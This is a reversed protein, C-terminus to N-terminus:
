TSNEYRGIDGLNYQFYFRMWVNELKGSRYLEKVRLPSYIGISKAGSKELCLEGEARVVYLDWMHQTVGHRCINQEVLIGTALTDISKMRLGTEESFERLLAGYSDEGTDVHGAIGAYGHPESLRDVLVFGGGYFVWAGASYHLPEGNHEGLKPQGVMMM